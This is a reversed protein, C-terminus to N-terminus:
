TPNVLVRTHEDNKKAGQFKFNIFPNQVPISTRSSRNGVKQKSQDRGQSGEKDSITITAAKHEFPATTSNTSAVAQQIKYNSTGGSGLKSLKRRRSTTKTSPAQLTM